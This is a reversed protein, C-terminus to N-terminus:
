ATVVRRRWVGGPVDRWFVDVLAVYRRTTAGRFVLSVIGQVAAALIAGGVPLPLLGLAALTVAPVLVHARVETWSSRLLRWGIRFASRARSTSLALAPTVFTLTAAVVAGMTATVVRTSWSGPGWAIAAVVTPVAAPLLLLALRVFRPGLIRVSAWVNRWDLEEGRTHRAFVVRESGWWGLWVLWWVPALLVLPAAPTDGLWALAPNVLEVAVAVPLLWRVDRITAISARVDGAFTGM